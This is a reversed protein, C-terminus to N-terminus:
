GLYHAVVKPLSDTVVVQQIVRVSKVVCGFYHFAPEM